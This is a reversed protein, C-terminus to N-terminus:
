VNFTIKCNCNELNTERKKIYHIKIKLRLVNKTKDILDYYYTSKM